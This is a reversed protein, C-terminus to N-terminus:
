LEFPQAPEFTGCALRNNPVDPRAETAESGAFVVIGRKDVGDPGTTHAGRVFVSAEASGDNGNYLQPVLNRGDEGAGSPAWPQGASFGNPSTCNPTDTFAVRYPGQPLNIMSVTLTVGDGRDVVRARGWIGSGLGKLSATLGYRPRSADAAAPQAPPASPRLSACAALAIAALAAAALARPTGWRM